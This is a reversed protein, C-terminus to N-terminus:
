IATVRRRFSSSQLLEARGDDDLDAFALSYGYRDYSSGAQALPWNIPAAADSPIVETFSWKSDSTKGTLYIRVLGSDTRLENDFPSPSDYFPAGVALDDKGDGDM